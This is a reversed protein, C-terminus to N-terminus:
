RHASVNACTRVQSYNHIRLNNVKTQMSEPQQKSIYEDIESLFFKEKTSVADGYVKKVATSRRIM